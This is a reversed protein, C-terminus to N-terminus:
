RRAFAAEVGGPAWELEGTVHRWVALEHAGDRKRRMLVLRDGTGDDGIAIAAAPFGGMARALGTERCVHDWTPGIRRPDSDDAIPHLDWWGDGVEVEGGNQRRLWERYRRPFTVGLEHEAAAICPEAAPEYM